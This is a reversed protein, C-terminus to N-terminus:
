GEQKLLFISFISGEGEKSTLKIYGNQAKMVEQALYLGIGLGPADSVEPSRYFRTFINAQESELVGMGTDTVDIRVFSVAAVARVRVTGGSPTYKIANDVINAVAEITWKLDFVATEDASEVTFQIGKGESKPIFQKQVAALVPEISQKKVRVYIIGTETRSLKLLLEILFDLKEAQDRIAAIAELSDSGSDAPQWERLLQAYILINAIPTVAQHSLDSILAQLQEKEESLKQVAIENDCLYRWMNSEIASLKTEDLHVDQFKRQIAEDLMDQLRNMIRHERRVVYFIICICVAILLVAASSVAIALYSLDM